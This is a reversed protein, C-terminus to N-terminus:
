RPQVGDAEAVLAELDARAVTVFAKAREAGSRLMKARASPSKIGGVVAVLDAAAVRFRADAVHKRLRDLADM